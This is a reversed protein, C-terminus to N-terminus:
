VEGWITVALDPLSSKTEGEIWGKGLKGLPKQRLVHPNESMSGIELEWNGIEGRGNANCFVLGAEPHM